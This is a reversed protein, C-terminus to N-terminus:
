VWRELASNKGKMFMVPLVEDVGCCLPLMNIRKNLNYGTMLGGEENSLHPSGQMSLSMPSREKLYPDLRDKTKGGRKFWRLYLAGDSM